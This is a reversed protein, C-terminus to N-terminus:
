GMIRDLFLELQFANDPESKWKNQVDLLADIADKQFNEAASTGPLEFTVACSKGAAITGNRDTEACGIAAHIDAPCGDPLTSELMAMMAEQDSAVSEQFITRSDNWFNTVGDIKCSRQGTVLNVHNGDACVDDFGPQTMADLAEFVQSVGEQSTVNNGNGHIFFMNFTQENPYNEEIWKLHSVPKSGDPTWLADKNVDAKFNAAFGIM